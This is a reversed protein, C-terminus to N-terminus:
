AKQTLWGGLLHVKYIQETNHFGAQALLNRIRTEPILADEVTARQYFNKRMEESFGQFILYEQWAKLALQSEHTTFDGYLGAVILWGGTKIREAIGQLLKLKTGDDPQLHEVLIMTAADYIPQSPLDHVTGTVVRVRNNLNLESIKSEVIRIMPEAPDVGTLSWGTKHTAHTVLSTGTGCGVDLIQAEGFLKVSLYSLVTRHLDNYGSFTKGMMEDYQNSNKFREEIEKKM